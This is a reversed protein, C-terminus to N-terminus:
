VAWTEESPVTKTAPNERDYLWRAPNEIIYRRIRALSEDTRIGHVHNPMVIFADLAIGRDDDHLSNWAGAVLTGM